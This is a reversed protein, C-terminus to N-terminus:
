GSGASSPEASKLRDAGRMPGFAPTGWTRLWRIVEDDKVVYDQACFAKWRRDLEAIDKEADM